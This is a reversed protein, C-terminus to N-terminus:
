ITDILLAEVAVVAAVMVVPHHTISIVQVMHHFSTRTKITTLVLLHPATIMHFQHHHLHRGYQVIVILPRAIVQDTVIHTVVMVVVVQCHHFTINRMQHNIVGVAQSLIYLHVQCLARQAIRAPMVVAVQLHMVIGSMTIM